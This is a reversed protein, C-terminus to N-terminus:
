FSTASSCLAVWPHDPNREATKQLWEVCQRREEPVGRRHYYTLAIAYCHEANM